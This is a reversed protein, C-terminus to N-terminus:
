AESRAAPDSVRGESRTANKNRGAMLAGWTGVVAAPLLGYDEYIGFSLAANTAILTWLLPAVLLLKPVKRDALALLGFTFITTPCPAVGFMPAFPYNHGAFHGILPYVVAAYALTLVGAISAASRSVQFSLRAQVVGFYLFLLGQVVFLAGFGFAAPNIPSFFAIHYAAGNWVWLAALIAATVRGAHRHGRAILVLALLGLGYAVIQAPWIAQNYAAFVNLFEEVNFPVKM